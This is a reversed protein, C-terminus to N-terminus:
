LINNLFAQNLTINRSRKICRMAMLVKSIYQILLVLFSGEVGLNTSVLCKMINAWELDYYNESIENALRDTLWRFGLTTLFCEYTVKYSGELDDYKSLYYSMNEDTIEEDTVLFSEVFM